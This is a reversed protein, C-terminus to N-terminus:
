AKTSNKLTEIEQKLKTNEQEFEKLTEIVESYVITSTELLRGCVIHPTAQQVLSNLKIDLNNRM